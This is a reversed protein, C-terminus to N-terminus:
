NWGMRAANAEYETQFQSKLRRLRKLDANTGAKIEKTLYHTIQKEAEEFQKTFILVNVYNLLMKQKYEAKVEGDNSSM